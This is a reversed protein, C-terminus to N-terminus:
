LGRRYTSDKCSEEPGTQHTVFTKGLIDTAHEKVQDISTAIKVWWSEEEALMFKRKLLGFMEGLDKAATVADDM